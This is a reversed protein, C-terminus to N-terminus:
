FFYMGAEDGFGTLQLKANLILMYILFSPQQPGAPSRDARPCSQSALAHTHHSGPDTLRQSDGSGQESVSRQASPFLQREQQEAAAPAFSVAATPVWTGTGRKSESIPKEM